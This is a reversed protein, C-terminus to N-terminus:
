NVGNSFDVGNWQEYTTRWDPLDWDQNLENGYLFQDWGALDDFEVTGPDWSTDLSQQGPALPKDFVDDSPAHSGTSPSVQITTAPDSDFLSDEAGLCQHEAFPDATSDSAHYQAETNDTPEPGIHLANMQLRAMSLPPIKSEIRILGFYPLIISRVRGDESEPADGTLFSELTEVVKLGQRSISGGQMTGRYRFIDKVEDVVQLDNDLSEIGPYVGHTVGLLLGTLLMAATLVGQFDECACIYISLGPTGRLLCFVKLMERCGQLCLNWSQKQFEWTGESQLMHPLHLFAQIEWFWMQTMLHEHSVQMDSSEVHREPQWWEHPMALACSAMEKALSCTFDPDPTQGLANHENIRGAMVATVRRLARMKTEVDMGADFLTAKALQDTFKKDRAHPFGLILSMFHDLEYMGGVWRQRHILEDKTATTDDEFNLHQSLLIAHRVRLWSKRLQDGEAHTKARQLALLIGAPGKPQRSLVVQDIATVIRDFLVMPRASLTLSSDDLGPRIRHLSIAICILGTAYVVPDTSDLREQVFGRLTPDVGGARLTWQQDRWSIWWESAIDVVDLIDPDHAITSKLKELDSMDKNAFTITSNTEVPPALIAESQTIKQEDSMNLKWNNQGVVENNFLRFLPSAKAAHEELESGDVLSNQVREFSCGYEDRRAIVAQDNQIKQLREVM